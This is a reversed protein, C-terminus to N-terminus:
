PLTFVYEFTQGVPLRNDPDEVMMTIRIMRPRIDDPGWACTYIAGPGMTLAYNGAAAPMTVTTSSPPGIKEFPAPTGGIFDRLPVVDRSTPGATIVPGAATDDTIDVNRPLGYWRIRREGTDPHIFFDIEGDTLNPPAFANGTIAGYTPSTPNIDQNLYDGAYEVIFKSCQPVFLPVQRAVAGPTPPVSFFPDARFRAATTTSGTPIAGLMLLEWWNATLAPSPTALLERLITSFGAISTGALDYRSHFLFTTSQAQNPQSNYSLPRLVQETVPGPPRVYYFQPAGARDAIVGATPERLLM